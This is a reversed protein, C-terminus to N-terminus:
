PMGQGAGQGARGRSRGRPREMFSDNGVTQSGTGEAALAALAGAEGVEGLAPQQTGARGAPHAILSPPGGSEREPRLHCGAERPLKSARVETAETSSGARRHNLGLMMMMSFMRGCPDGGHGRMDVRLYTCLHSHAHSARGAAMDRAPTPHRPPRCSGGSGRVQAWAFAPGAASPQGDRCRVM